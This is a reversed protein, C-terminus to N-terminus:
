SLGMAKYQINRGEDGLQAILISPRGQSLWHMSLNRQVLNEKWCSRTPSSSTPRRRRRSRAETRDTQGPLESFRSTMSCTSFLVCMKSLSVERYNVQPCQTKTIQRQLQWRNQFDKTIEKKADRREVRKGEATREAAWKQASHSRQLKASSGQTHVDMLTATCSSWKFGQAVLVTKFIM